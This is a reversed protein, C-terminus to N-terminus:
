SQRLTRWYRLCAPNSRVATQLWSRKSRLTEPAQLSEQTTDRSQESLSGMLFYLEAPRHEALCFVAFIRWLATPCMSWWGMHSGMLFWCQSKKESTWTINQPRGDISVMYSIVLYHAKWAVWGMWSWWISKRCKRPQHFRNNYGTFGEPEDALIHRWVWPGSCGTDM